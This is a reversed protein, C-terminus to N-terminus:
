DKSEKPKLPLGLHSLFARAEDKSRATTVLTIAFSFVDKIDEDATEPFITHEKIGFTYNGMADFSTISLGRFDRTRPLSVHILKQMFDFMRTGRLTVQYGVTEGERVKFSAISKRAGRSAVKQGSIKTLRDAISKRRNKDKASGVGVSLVVKLLRPVQMPNKYGFTGKLSEFATKQKEQVSEM